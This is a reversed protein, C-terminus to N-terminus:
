LGGNLGAKLQGFLSNSSTGAIPALVILVLYHATQDILKLISEM